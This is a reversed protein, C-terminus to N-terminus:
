TWLNLPGPGETFNLLSDLSSFDFDLLNSFDLESGLGSFEDMALGGAEYFGSPIASAGLALADAGYSYPDAFPDLYNAGGGPISDPIGALISDSAISDWGQMGGGAPQAFNYQSPPVGYMDQWKKGGWIGFKSLWSKDGPQRGVGLTNYMLMAAPYQLLGGYMDQVNKDKQMELMQSQYNASSEFRKQELNQAARTATNRVVADMTGEWFAKQDATSAPIGTAAKRQNIFSRYKSFADMPMIGFGGSPYEINEVAM